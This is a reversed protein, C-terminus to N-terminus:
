SLFTLLGRISCPIFQYEQTIQEPTWKEGKGQETRNPLFSTGSMVHGQSGQGISATTPSQTAPLLSDPYKSEERHIEIPIWMDQTGRCLAQEPLGVGLSCGRSHKQTGGTLVQTRFDSRSQSGPMYSVVIGSCVLLIQAWKTCTRDAQCIWSTNTLAAAM